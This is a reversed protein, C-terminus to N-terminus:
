DATWTGNLNATCVGSQMSAPVPPYYRLTVANAYGAPGYDAGNTLACSGIRSGSALAAPCGDAYYHHGNGTCLSQLAADDSGFYDICTSTSAGNYFYECGGVIASNGAGGGASTVVFDSASTATKTEAVVTIRGTASGAPVTTVITTSTCSVITAQTGNFRVTTSAASAGFNEGAITVTTGVPGSTPTFGTIAPATASDSNPSDSGGGGCGFIGIALCLALTIVIQVSKHTKM